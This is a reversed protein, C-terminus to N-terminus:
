PHAAGLRERALLILEVADAVSLRELNITLDARTADVPDIQFHRRVFEAREHDIRTLEQLAEADNLGGAAAYAKVRRETPATLRVRLGRNQPLILDIARGLFVAHGQRAISLVTQTLRHFYDNKVFEPQVISRLTEESWSMDREDMSSYIHERMADDGAMAGLLEKDFVPWGLLEGLRSALERGGAGVLRSIAIFDEVDARQEKPVTLRQARALEWNRMQREVLRELGRDGTLSRGSM